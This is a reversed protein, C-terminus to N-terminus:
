VEKKLPVLILADMNDRGLIWTCTEEALYFAKGGFGEGARIELLRYGSEDTVFLYGGTPEPIRMLRKPDVAIVSPPSENQIQLRPFDTM